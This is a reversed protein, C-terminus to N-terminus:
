CANSMASALHEAQFISYVWISAQFYVAISKGAILVGRIGTPVLPVTLADIRAIVPADSDPPLGAMEHFM